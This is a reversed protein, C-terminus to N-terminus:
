GLLITISATGGDDDTIQLVLIGPGEYSVPIAASIDVPNIEPSPYPDPTPPNNLFTTIINQSGYDCTITEDDSGPDRIHCALNFEYGILATNLDVVWPDIHNWHDSDWYSQRVNFTHHLRKVSGNEFTIDIWVPNGGWVNGNIGPDNPLYDVIASYSKTMDLRVNTITATQDDPNGPYRTVQASWLESGDEYINIRVSHWKEGAVRLTFNVNVFVEVDSILPAINKVTINTTVVTVGGDDDEVTLLLTFIGNDGYTHTASDGVTIPNIDPSPYPDSSTGMNYFVHTITPGYEFEWTFTLDDSGPDTGQCVFAALSNEDVINTGNLNVTPAINNVTINTMITTTGGDDDTVTLSLSFAGNDGYTHTVTDSSSFPYTGGPSPYPDPGVGDNFHINTIIPGLELDWIFTLDDSGLDSASATITIPSAEDGIISGIPAITPAINEVSVTTTYTFTGGDDDVITLIATYDADDGYVHTLTDTVSFPYTGWPSPNPDPGMANNYHTVATTPTGDGWEMTLIIDDSGPDEASITFELPSGENASSIGIIGGTPGLNYVSIELTDTDVDGDDDSVTLTVTYIGDDGYVHMPILTGSVTNGDGFDWEIDHTDLWGPDSFGGNFNLTEGEYVTQDPGANVTPAVNYITVTTSDTSSSSGDNVEVVVTGSYDDGWTYDAYPSSSWSTDWVGDNDFDWRYQLADGDPDSSSSADFTVPSGEYGIYPGNADAIPPNNTPAATTISFVQTVWWLEDNDEYVNATATTDGASVYASVDYTDTDWGHDYSGGDSGDADDYAIVNGNFSYKDYRTAGQYYIQGDGMIYTTYATPNATATFGAFNTETLWHPPSQGQNSDIGDNIIIVVYNQSSDSYIVVISVGYTSSLGSVVYNGNGTVLSTIDSRYGNQPGEVGVQEGVVSNGNLFINQDNGYNSNYIWYMFAMEIVAGSPIDNITITGSSSGWTQVGDASYNGYGEWAIYTNLVGDGSTPTIPGASFFSIIM